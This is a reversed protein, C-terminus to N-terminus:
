SFGIGAYGVVNSPDKTAKASSYYDILRTKNFKKEICYSILAEIGAFGCISANEKQRHKEFGELDLALIKKIAESDIRKAEAESIFHSFDSSAILGVEKENCARALAKGLEISTQLNEFGLSIAVLKFGPFLNQLFPMLVEIAHEDFHATEELMAANMEGAIKKSLSQNVQIKGLPTEWSGEPYVSIAAGFGTHNPCLVVFTEKQKLTALTRAALMGSFPYGAHPSIVAESNRENLPLSPLFKKVENLLKEKSAPYFLGSVAPLRNM